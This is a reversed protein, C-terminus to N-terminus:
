STDDDDDDDSNKPHITPRPITRLTESKHPNELGSLRLRSLAVYLCEITTYENEYDNNPHIIATDVTCGQLAYPTMALAMKLPYHRYTFKAVPKGFQHRSRGQEIDRRQRNTCDDLYIYHNSRQLTCQKGSKLEIIPHSGRETLGKLRGIAGNVIGEGVDKNKLIRVPCGIYFEKDVNAATKVIFAKVKDQVKGRGYASYIDDVNPDYEECVTLAMKYRADVEGMVAKTYQSIRDQSNFVRVIGPMVCPNLAASLGNCGNVPRLVCLSLLDEDDSTLRNMAMRDLLRGYELDGEQRLNAELPLVRDVWGDCSTTTTWKPHEFLYVSNQRTGSGVPPLQQFDGVFIMIIGGFPRDAQSPWWFTGVGDLVEVMLGNHMSVEDIIVVEAHAIAPIRMCSVSRRRRLFFARDRKRWRRYKGM